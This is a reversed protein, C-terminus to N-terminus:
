ADVRMQARFARVGECIGTILTWCDAYTMSSMASALADNTTRIQISYVDPVEVWEDSGKRKTRLGGPTVSVILGTDFSAAAAHWRLKDFTSWDQDLPPEIHTGYQDPVRRVDSLDVLPTSEAHQRRFM